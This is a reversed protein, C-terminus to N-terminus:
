EMRFAEDVRACLYHGITIHMEQIHPTSKSPVIIPVEFRVVLEGGDRGLLGITRLGQQKAQEVAAIVNPSQGSTSIGILVDGAQGHAEVQRAFVREFGLDNSIATVASSDTSLALAPLARRNKVEYRGTLEAAIHQADAASGGNGCLLIKHGSRLATILLKGAQEVVTGLTQSVTAALAHHRNFHQQFSDNLIISPSPVTKMLPHISFAQRLERPGYISGDM